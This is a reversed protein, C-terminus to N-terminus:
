AFVEGWVGRSVEARWWRETPLGRWGKDASVASVRSVWTIYLGWECKSGSPSRLGWERKETSAGTVGSTYFGVWGQETSAGSIGADCIHWEGNWSQLCGVWGQEIFIGSVGAGSVRARYVGSVGAKSVGARYVGAWGQEVWGYGQQTYAAVWAGRTPLFGSAGRYLGWKGRSQIYHQWGSVGARYLGWDDQEIAAREIRSQLPGAWGKETAM